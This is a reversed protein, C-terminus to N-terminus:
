IRNLAPTGRSPHSRPLRPTLRFTFRQWRMAPPTPTANRMPRCCCRANKPATATARTRAARVSRTPPMPLAPRFSAGIRMGSLDLGHADVTLTHRTYVIHPDAQAIGTWATLALCPILVSRFM